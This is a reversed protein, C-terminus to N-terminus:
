KDEERRDAPAGAEKGGDEQGAAEAVMRAYKEIFEDARGEGGEEKRNVSRVISEMTPKGFFARGEEPSGYFALRGVRNADRALVIIKDFLDIVRDPTHTIAIVIKGSDAITRLREFLERAIVGDLGSDPEDLIFLEPDTILEMGISIRKKQGGSKKSVLGDKGGELGLNQMVEVVRDHRQKRDFEAPLRLMAADELTNHVTDNLRLLEQQPVMGVKYKLRDYNKYLDQGNLYITADAKEYGTIANILTTKGSGSGGLLLVLSGNPITLVINNLLYRKKLFEQVTRKRVNIYLGSRSPATQAEIGGIKAPAYGAVKANEEDKGLNVPDYHAGYGWIVLCLGPSFFWLLMWNRSVGFMRVVGACVRMKYVIGMIMLTFSFISFLIALRSDGNINGFQGDFVSLLFSVVELVGAMRGDEDRGSLDGLVFFRKGPILAYYGKEGCLKFVRFAGVSFLAYEIVDFVLNLSIVM